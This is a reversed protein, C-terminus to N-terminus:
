CNFIYYAIVAFFLTFNKLKKVNIIVYKGYHVWDPLHVICLKVDSYSVVSLRNM